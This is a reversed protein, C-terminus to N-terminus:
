KLIHVGGRIKYAFHLLTQLLYPVSAIQMHSEKESITSSIGNEALRKRVMIISNEM